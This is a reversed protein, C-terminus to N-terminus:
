EPRTLVTELARVFRTLEIPKTVYLQAGAALAATEREPAVDASLAVVPIEATAPDAKLQRLVELGDIDPLSMDLVIADTRRERAIALGAAGNEALLLEVDPADELLRGMLASNSATDEVYLLTGALTGNAAPAAGDGDEAPKADTADLEVWFESGAVGIDGGMARALNRSLALGLGTGDIGAHRELREFPEFIRAVEESTPGAGEDIVTARVRRDEASVRVVVESAEPGYKIANSILNLLVQKLRQPDAKAHVGDTALEMRVVIRRDAALPTVLMVTEDVADAVDVPALAIPMEGAEIRSIDLVDNIVELLHRGGRVIRAASDLQDATLDDLELLQAFGMIANLPTRLEHSMRALFQSKARNAREAAERARHAEAEARRRESMDLFQVLFAVPEDGADRMLSVKLSVWVESGDRRALRQEVTMTRQSGALLERAVGKTRDEPRLVDEYSLGILDQDPYGLLDALAGNVREFSGGLGVIAMGIPAEEFTRRFREEARQLAELQRKAESIDRTATQIGVAAGADDRLIRAISETWVWHGERHRIRFVTRVREAGRLLSEHSAVVGPHDDPHILEYGYRGVLEDPAYGMLTRSASSLYNLRADLDWQGVMDTANEALLRYRRESDRLALESRKQETVDKAVAYLVEEDPVARSQWSLWRVEGDRTLYRNEWGRTGGGAHRLATERATAEVDDPHVFDLFPKRMMEAPPYGLVDEWATSVRLFRGEFDTVCTLAGGLTYERRRELLAEVLRAAARLSDGVREGDDRPATDLVAVTGIAVGGPTRLPVGAYFRARPGHAVWPHGAFREDASADPVVLSDAAATVVGFSRQREVQDLDAGSSAKVCERADDVFSVLAIPADCLRKAIDAVADYQEEPPTDLIAYDSLPDRGRERNRLARVREATQQGAVIEM